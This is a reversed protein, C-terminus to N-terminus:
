DEQVPKHFLWYGAALVPCLIVTPIIMLCLATTYLIQYWKAMTEPETTEHCVYWFTEFVCAYRTGPGSVWFMLLLVAAWILSGCVWLNVYHWVTTWCGEFAAYNAWAVGYCFCIGVLITLATVAIQQQENKNQKNTM